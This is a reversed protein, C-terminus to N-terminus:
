PPQDLLLLLLLSYERIKKQFSISNGGMRLIAKNRNNSTNNKALVIGKQKIGGKLIIKKLHM